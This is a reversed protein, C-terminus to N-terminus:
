GFEIITRKKKKTDDNRWLVKRELNRELRQSFEKKDGKSTGRVLKGWATLKRDKM